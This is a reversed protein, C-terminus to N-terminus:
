FNFFFQNLWMQECTANFKRFTKVRGNGSRPAPCEVICVCLPHSLKIISVTLCQMNEPRTTEPAAGHNSLVAESIYVFSDRASVTGKSCMERRALEFCGERHVSVFNELPESVASLRCCRAFRLLLQRTSGEAQNHNLSRLVCVCVCACAYFLLGTSHLFIRCSALM